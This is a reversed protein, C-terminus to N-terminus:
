DPSRKGTSRSKSSRSLPYLNAPIGKRLADAYQKPSVGLTRRFLARVQERSMELAGALTPAVVTEFEVSVAELGALDARAQDVSEQTMVTDRFGDTLDEFAPAVTFLDATFVSIIMVAGVVIVGISAIRKQM